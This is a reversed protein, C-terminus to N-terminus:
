PQPKAPALPPHGLLIEREKDSLAALIALEIRKTVAEPAQWGTAGLRFDPLDDTEITKVRQLVESGLVFESGQGAGPHYRSIRCVPNGNNDNEVMASFNKIGKAALKDLLESKIEKCLIELRQEETKSQYNKQYDWEKAHRELSEISLLEARAVGAGLVGTM